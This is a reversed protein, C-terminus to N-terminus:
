VRSYITETAKSEEGEPSINYATIILQNNSDLAITTRWGWAAGIEPSGYSGLVSIGENSEEGKSLMIGTGMHFSDIWACEYRSNSIDYGFIAIGEFPKEMLTGTYEHMVFRGGLIARITGKMPSEDAIVNPEFWTKTTGEWEGTLLQLRYHEGNEQSLEFKSKSM